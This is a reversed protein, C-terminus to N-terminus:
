DQERSYISFPQIRWHSAVHLSMLEQQLHMCYDPLFFPWNVSISYTLRNISSCGLMHFM